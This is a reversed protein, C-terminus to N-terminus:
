KEPGQSQAPGTRPLGLGPNEDELQKKMKQNSAIRERVGKVVTSEATFQVLLEREESSLGEILSCIAKYEALKEPSITATTDAIIGHTQNTSGAPAPPANGLAALWNTGLGVVPNQLNRLLDAPIPDLRTEVGVGWETPPQTEMGSNSSSGKVLLFRTHGNEPPWVHAPEGVWDIAVPEPPVIHFSKDANVPDEQLGISLQLPAGDAFTKDGLLRWTLRGQIPMGEPAVVWAAASPPTPKLTVQNSCLVAILTLAYGSPVSVTSRYLRSDSGPPGGRAVEYGAPANPESVFTAQPSEDVRRMREHGIWLVLLLVGLGFGALRLVRRPFRSLPAHLLAHPLARESNWGRLFHRVLFVDLVILALVIIVLALITLFGHRVHFLLWQLNQFFLLPVLLAVLDLLLLPWAIASCLALRGGRCEGPRARFGCLARWALLTGGAAPLGILLVLFATEGPGIHGGVLVALGFELLSLGILGAAAVARISWGLPRPVATPPPNSPSASPSPNGGGAALNVTGTPGPENAAPNATIREVHTRVDGASQFRREREKELARLVVEDVRPDMPAKESPPAFRGIPLEGTLMEYFVVGLSYVDARQDVDQPRELQEPAMYHPTGITAGSATLTIDKADGMLKAIGFDAIKLRGRTDLLLNEPKIDRHLVGEEHAYQLADCIKPVLALAQAPTFRGARMAQRLNVGDVFEMLLYFFAGAQGFDHVAVINPHSLRALMRAERNFRENFAPDAGSKQPLLKLAVFRDLRPQRAKFVVGMGGQGIFELIELQPFAAAVTEVSPPPSAQASHGAETAIAAGALLCKPCLGQPAEPPIPAHCKPCSKISETSM